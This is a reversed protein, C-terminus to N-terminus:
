NSPRSLLVQDGENVGSLIETKGNASIGKKVSVKKYSTKAPSKEEAGGESESEGEEAEDDDGEDASKVAVFVFHDSGNDTHVAADPVLLASDNLYANLHVQCTMGPLLGEPADQMSVKCDFTKTSSPILEVSRVRVDVAKSPFAKPVAYGNVGAEVQALQEETLSVSLYLDDLSAVTMLTSKAAVKGEEEIEVTKGSVPWSGHYVVGDFPAKLTLAGLEKELQEMDKNAKDFAIEAKEMEIREKEFGDGVTELEKRLRLMNRTHNDRYSKEQRPLEVEVNRQYREESRKFNKRSRELNRKERRLVLDESEEVLEDEEYMQKLQNFEDEADQLFAKSLRRSEEIDELRQPWTVEEWYHFDQEAQEVAREKDARTLENLQEAQEAALQKEHFTLEALRHAQRLEHAKKEIDEMKLSLLVQDARVKQGHEVVQDAKLDTLQENEFELEATKNSMVTGSLEHVVRMTGRKVEATKEQALSLPALSVSGLGAALLTISFLRVLKM